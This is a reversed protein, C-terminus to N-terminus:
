CWDCQVGLLNKPHGFSGGIPKPITKAVGLIEKPHNLWRWGATPHSGVGLGALHAWPWLAVGLIKLKKSLIDNKLIILEKKLYFYYKYSV